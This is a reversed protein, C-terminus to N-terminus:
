HLQRTLPDFGSALTEKGKRVLLASDVCALPDLHAALGIRVELPFRTLAPRATRTAAARGRSFRM